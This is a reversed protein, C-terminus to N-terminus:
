PGRFGFYTNKTQVTKKIERHTHTHTYANKVGVQPGIIIFNQNYFNM